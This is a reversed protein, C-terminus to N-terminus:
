PMKQSSLAAKAEAISGFVTVYYATDSQACREFDGDIRGEALGTGFLRVVATWSQESAILRGRPM